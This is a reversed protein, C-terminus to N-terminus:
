TGQAVGEPWLLSSARWSVEYEVIDGVRVDPIEAFATLNGDVIGNDLDQERRAITFHLDDLRDHVVGDRIIRVAHVRLEEESPDFGFSLRGESELGSRDFIETARRSYTVVADPERRVQTDYVLNYVGDSAAALRMERKEPIAADAVWNPTPTVHVGPAGGQSVDDQAGGSWAWSVALIMGAALGRAGRSTSSWTAM